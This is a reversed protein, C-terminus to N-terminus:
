IVLLVGRAASGTAEAIARSYLRVQAIYRESSSSFERDTKFDVVTWVAATSEEEQFALDVVGEVILGNGLKHLVPAERRVRGRAASAAARQLIPHELVAEIVICAAKVEDETANVIRGNIAAM